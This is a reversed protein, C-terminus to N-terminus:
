GKRKGSKIQISIANTKRNKKLIAKEGDDGTVEMYYILGSNMQEVAKQILQNNNM